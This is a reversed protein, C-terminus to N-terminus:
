LVCIMVFTTKLNSVEYHYSVVPIRSLFLDGFLVVVNLGHRMVNDFEVHNGDYIVAWYFIALFLSAASITQFM